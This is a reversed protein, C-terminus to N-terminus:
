NKSDVLLDILTSSDKKVGYIDNPNFGLTVHFDKAQLLFDQRILQADSSQAVVFFTKNSGQEVKALGLLTVNLQSSFNRNFDPTLLKEILAKDALQYEKPSLLTMHFSQHDRAAQHTRFVQFDDKLIGKLQTLYPLLEARSVIAGLYVQGQSDSLQTVQLHLNKVQHENPQHQNLMKLAKAQQATIEPHNQNAQAIQPTFYLCIVACPFLACFMSENCIKKVIKKLLLKM